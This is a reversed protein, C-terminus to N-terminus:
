SPNIKKYAEILSAALEEPLFSTSRSASELVTQFIQEKVEEPLKNKNEEAEIVIIVVKM